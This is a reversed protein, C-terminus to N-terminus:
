FFNSLHYKKELINNLMNIVNLVMFGRSYLVCKKNTTELALYNEKRHLITKVIIIKYM